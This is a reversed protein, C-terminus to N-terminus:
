KIKLSYKAFFAALVTTIPVALILGISGALSRIIEETITESNLIVWLPQINNKVGLILFIFIGISAGAYALILTNVVSAIHERGVKMGRKVLTQYTAKEDSDAFESITTSQTTTVDDLVGLVGIIIGGLLLGKFQITNKFTQQLTYADESGMGSMKAVNVFLIALIATIFLSICTALLAVHTQHNFGHALYISITFIVIGGIISILLPDHGALIQPIIFWIIISLSIVMGLIGGAGKRGAVAIVSIFFVGILVLVQPIRYKDIIHYETKHDPTMISSVIVTDSPTVKQDNTITFIGGYEVTVQKGKEPGDLFILSVDQFLNKTGTVEKTGEKTIKTVKAKFYTQQPATQALCQAPFLLIGIFIVLPLLWQKGM